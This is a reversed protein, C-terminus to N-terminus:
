AAPKEMEVPLKKLGGGAEGGSEVPLFPFTIHFLIYTLVLDLPDM